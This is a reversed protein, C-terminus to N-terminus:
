SGPSSTPTATRRRPWRPGSAGASASGTAASSGPCDLEGAEALRQLMPVDRRCDSSWEESIVLVRRPGGPQAVLWRIAATQAESLRVSEYWSRMWGSWDRGSGGDASERRLNRARWTPSISRSTMGSAYRAPTVVTRIRDMM